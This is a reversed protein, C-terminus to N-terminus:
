LLTLLISHYVMCWNYYFMNQTAGSDSRQQWSYYQFHDLVSGEQHEEQPKTHAAEAPL